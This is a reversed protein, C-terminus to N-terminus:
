DSNRAQEHATLITTRALDLLFPDITENKSETLSGVADLGYLHLSMRVSTHVSPAESRAPFVGFGSHGWDLLKYHETQWGDRSVGFM